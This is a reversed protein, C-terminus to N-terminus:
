SLALYCCTITPMRVVIMVAICIERNESKLIICIIIKLNAYKVM